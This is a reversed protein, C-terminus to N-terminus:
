FDILQGMGSVTKSETPGTDVAESPEVKLPSALHAPPLTDDDQPKGTYRPPLEPVSLHKQLQQQELVIPAFTSGEAMNTHGKQQSMGAIHPLKPPTASPPPGTTAKEDVKDQLEARGNSRSDEGVPIEELQIQPKTKQGVAPNTPVPQAKAQMESLNQCDSSSTDRFFGSLISKRRHSKRKNTLSRAISKCPEVLRSSTSRVSGDGKISTTNQTNSKRCREIIAPFVRKVAEGAARLTNM